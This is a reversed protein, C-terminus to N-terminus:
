RPKGVLADHLQQRLHEDRMVGPFAADNQTDTHLPAAVSGGAAAIRALLERTLRRRTESQLDNWRLLLDNGLGLLGADLTPNLSLAGLHSLAKVETEGDHVLLTGAALDGFRVRHATFFTTCLGVGYLAPLSDILRFANRILLALISPTGGQLNVLRVGAMRRGPTRGRLLLELLPQYLFYIALAPLTAIAIASPVSKGRMFFFGTQAYAAVAFWALAILVRIHWDIVFAYARSGPGAIALEVDVGTPSTVILSENNL